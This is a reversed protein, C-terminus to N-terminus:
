SPASKRSNTSACFDPSPGQAVGALPQIGYASERALFYRILAGTVGAASSFRVSKRMSPHVSYCGSQPRWAWCVAGALGHVARSLELTIPQAGTAGGNQPERGITCMDRLSVPNREATPRPLLAV